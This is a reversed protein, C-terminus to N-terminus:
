RTGAEDHTLALIVPLPRQGTRDLYYYDYQTVTRFELASADPLSAQILAKVRAPEFGHVTSGDLALLQSTGDAVNAKFLPQGDFSTFELEKVPLNARSALLDRPHTFDALRVRGRLASALGGDGGRRGPPGQGQQPPRGPQRIGAQAQQVQSQEPQLRREPAPFPLFALSGSLTWTVTAV